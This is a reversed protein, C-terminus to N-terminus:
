LSATASMPAQKISCFFCGPPGHLFSRSCCSAITKEIVYDTGLLTGETLTRSTSWLWGLRLDPKQKWQESTVILLHHKSVSMIKALLTVTAL